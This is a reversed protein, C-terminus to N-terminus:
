TLDSVSCSYAAASVDSSEQYRSDSDPYGIVRSKAAPKLLFIFFSSAGVIVMHTHTYIYTCLVKRLSLIGRLDRHWYKLTYPAKSAFLVMGISFFHSFLFHKENATEAEVMEKEASM